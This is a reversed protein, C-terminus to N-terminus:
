LLTEVGRNRLEVPDSQVLARCIYLVHVGLYSPGRLAWYWELLGGYARSFYDASEFAVPDLFLALICIIFLDVREPVSIHKALWYPRRDFQGSSDCYQIGKRNRDGIWKWAVLHERPDQKAGESTYRPLPCLMPEGSFKSSILFPTPSIPIM